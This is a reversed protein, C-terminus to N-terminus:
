RGCTHSQIEQLEQDATSVTLIILSAVIVASSKRLALFSFGKLVPGIFDLRAHHDPIFEKGMSDLISLVAPIFTLSICLAAFVGFSALAGLQKIPVVDTTLVSIFGGMTTLGAMIVPLCVRHTANVIGEKGRKGQAADSFVNELVHIGYATGVATLVVPLTSAIQTM